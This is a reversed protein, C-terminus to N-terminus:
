IGFDREKDPHIAFVYKQDLRELSTAVFDFDM